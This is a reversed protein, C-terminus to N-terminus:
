IGNSQNGLRESVFGVNLKEQVRWKALRSNTATNKNDKNIKM